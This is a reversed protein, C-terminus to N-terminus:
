VIFSINTLLGQRIRKLLFICELLVYLVNVMPQLDTVDGDNPVSQFNEISFTCKIIVDSFTRYRNKVNTLFKDVIKDSNYFYYYECLKEYGIEYVEIEGIYKYDSPKNEVINHRGEGYNM